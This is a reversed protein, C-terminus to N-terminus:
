MFHTVVEQVYVLKTPIYFQVITIFWLFCIYQIFYTNIQRNISCINKLVKFEGLEHIVTVISSNM